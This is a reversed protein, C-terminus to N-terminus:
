YEANMWVAVNSEPPPTPPYHFRVSNGWAKEILQSSEQEWDALPEMTEKVLGQFDGDKGQFIDLLCWEFIRPYFGASAWDVICLSDEESWLINRPAIDLHCLVFTCRKFSLSLSEHKIRRNFWHELREISGCLSYETTTGESWLLGRSVGGGGLPGPQHSRFSSFHSIARGVKGTQSIDTISRKVTGKLYEMLLYGYRDRQFFRYPRPVRVISPDLHQYAWQLNTFEEIRVGPGYKVVAQRSIPIVKNCFGGLPIAAQAKSPPNACYDIIEVDTMTEHRLNSAHADTDTGDM